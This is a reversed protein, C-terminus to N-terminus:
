YPLASARDVFRDGSYWKRLTAPVLADMDKNAPPPPQGDKQEDQDTPPVEKATEFFEKLHTDQQDDFKSLPTSGKPNLSSAPTKAKPDSVSPAKKNEKKEKVDDKKGKTPKDM